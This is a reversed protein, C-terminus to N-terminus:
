SASPAVVSSMALPLLLYVTLAEVPATVIVLAPPRRTVSTPLDEVKGAASRHNIESSTKGINIKRGAFGIDRCM